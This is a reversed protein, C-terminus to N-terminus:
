QLILVRPCARLVADRDQSWNGSADKVQYRIRAEVVRLNQLNAADFLAGSAGDRWAAEGRYQVRVRFSTARIAPGGGFIVVQRDGVSVNRTLSGLDTDGTGCGQCQYGVAPAYNTGNLPGAGDFTFIGTFAGTGDLQPSLMVIDGSAGILYGIDYPRILDESKGSVMRRVHYGSAGLWLPDGGSAADGMRKYARHDVLNPNGSYAPDDKSTQPPGETSMFRGYSLFLRSYGNPNSEADTVSLVLPRTATDLGEGAHLIDQRMLELAIYLNERGEGGRIVDRSVRSGTMLFSAIIAMLVLGALGAVLLEVMTFGKQNFM